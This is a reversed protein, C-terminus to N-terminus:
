TLTTSRSPARTLSIASGPNIAIVGIGKASGANGTANSSTSPTTKWTEPRMLEGNGPSVRVANKAVRESEAAAGWLALSRPSLIRNPAFGVFGLGLASALAVTLLLCILLLATLASQLQSRRTMADLQFQQQEQVSHVIIKKVEAFTDAM